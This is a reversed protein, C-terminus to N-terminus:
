DTLRKFASPYKKVARRFAAAVVPNNFAADGTRAKGGSASVPRAPAKASSKAGSAEAKAPKSKKGSPAAKAKGQKKNGHKM